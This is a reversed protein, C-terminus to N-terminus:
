KPSRASIRKYVDKKPTGRMKAAMKIAEKKSLGFTHELYQVHEEISFDSWNCPSSDEDILLVMEGKPVAKQMLEEAVGRQVEEFHKSLERAVALRRSPAMEKLVALVELLDRAPLYCISVGLYQLAEQLKTKLAEKKKPLFGIFQFKEATFGSCTLAAILACPGPISTITIGKLIAEQILVGGPDHILPTGADSILAIKKGEQLQLIVEELKKRENFKHYSKLPKKIGYHNLLILSKRTDECLILDCEKLVELARLTIDKLNGIPTSVIYLM